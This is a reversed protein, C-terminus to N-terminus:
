SKEVTVTRSAVPGVIDNFPALGTVTSNNEVYVSSPAEAVSVQSLLKPLTVILLEDTLM